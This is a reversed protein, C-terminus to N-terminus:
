QGNTCPRDRIHFRGANLFAIQNIKNDEFHAKGCAPVAGAGLNHHREAACLVVGIDCLKQPAHHTSWQRPTDRGIVFQVIDAQEQGIVVLLSHFLNHVRQVAALINDGGIGDGVTSAHGIVLIRLKSIYKRIYIAFQNCVANFRRTFDRRQTSEHLKATSDLVIHDIDIDVMIHLFGNHLKHRIFNFADFIRTFVVCKCLRDCAKIQFRQSKIIAIVGIAHVFSVVHDHSFKVNVSIELNRTFFKTVTQIIGVPNEFMILSKIILVRFNLNNHQCPMIVSHLTDVIPALVLERLQIVFVAGFDALQVISPTHLIFAQRVSGVSRLIYIPM